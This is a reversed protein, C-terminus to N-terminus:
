YFNSESFMKQLYMTIARIEDNWSMNSYKELLAFGLKKQFSCLSLNSYDSSRAYRSFNQYDPDSKVLASSDPRYRNIDSYCDCQSGNLELNIRCNFRTAMVCCENAYTFLPDGKKIERMTICVVKNDSIYQLLNPRYYPSPREFRNMHKYILFVFGAFENQFTNCHLIYLHRLSLYMLFTEDDKSRVKERIAPQSFVIMLLKSPDNHYFRARYSEDSHPRINMQLFMRYKSKMDSTSPPIEHKVVSEVFKALEDIDEFISLALLISRVAYPVLHDSNRISNGCSVGHFKDREACAESCYMSNNCDCAVFNMTNKFCNSCVIKTTSMNPTTVFAEEVLVVKGVDIDRKAVFHRGFRENNAMKMINAMGPFNIDEDFDLKPENKEMQMGADVQKQCYKRREELKSMLREPYKANIALEIDALCKDYMQLKLFCLSRNAYALSSLKANESGDKAAYCLSNNYFHMAEYWKNESVKENGKQRFLSSRDDNKQPINGQLEKSYCEIMHKLRDMEPIDHWSYIEDTWLKWEACDFLMGISM